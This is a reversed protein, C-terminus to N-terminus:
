EWFHNELFLDAGEGILNRLLGFHDFTPGTPGRTRMLIRGSVMKYNNPLYVSNLINGVFTSSSGNEDVDLVSGLGTAILNM